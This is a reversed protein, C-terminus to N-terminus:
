REPAIKAAAEVIASLEAQIDLSKPWSRHARRYWYRANDLDGEQIHVIGHAWCGLESEDDQVLEHAKEWDGAQLHQVAKLVSM